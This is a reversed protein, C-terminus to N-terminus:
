VLKLSQAKLIAQARSSVGLKGYCNNIHRKVTSVEVFLRDAIDRNSLGQAILVLIEYERDTLPEVLTQNVSQQTPSSSKLNLLPSDLNIPFDEVLRAVVANMDLTKGQEYARAYVAEGLDTKVSVKLQMFFRWKQLFNSSDALLNEIFSIVEVGRAAKGEHILILAMLALLVGDYWSGWSGSDLSTHLHRRALSYDGQGCAVLALGIEAWGAKYRDTALHLGNELLQRSEVYNGQIDRLVATRWHRQHEAIKADVLTMAAVDDAVATWSM